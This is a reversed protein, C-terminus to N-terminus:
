AEENDFKLGKLVSFPNFADDEPEAGVHECDGENLNHGCVPCLGKCDEQCLPMVPTELVLSASLAQGLDVEGEPTLHEFEEEGIPEGDEDVADAQGDFVYFGEVEAALHMTAPELCRACEGVATARAMGALLVAGGTNTFVVDYDIGEPLQYVDYGVEYSEADLHGQLMFENGPEPIRDLVSILLTPIPM